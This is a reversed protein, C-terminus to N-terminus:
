SLYNMIISDGYHILLHLMIASEKLRLLDGLFVRAQTMLLGGHDTERALEVDLMMSADM